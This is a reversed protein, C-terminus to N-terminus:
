PVIPTSVTAQGDLINKYSVPLKTRQAIVVSANVDADYILGNSGYFRCGQRTGLKGTVCDTQSTYSPNVCVVRKSALEAKYTLVRRLESFAVQSIRNKNQKPHKKSKLKKISLDEIAIVTAKTELIKNALHHTFNKNINREKRSLKKLHRKASKTGKSQLCRKLYRLKRKRANFQKDIYIKGESTAAFRRIGLDVGIAYNVKQEPIEIKFVLSIYVDKGNCSLLPDCFSYKELCDQLKPYLIPTASVRKELTTLYFVGDVFRYLRKDIHTGLRKKVPPSTLQHKNSKISKYASLCNNEAKIILQSKAGPFEHRADRYCLRHLDVISNKASGFFRISCYNFVEREICWLDYFPLIKKLNRGV